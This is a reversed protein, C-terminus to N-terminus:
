PHNRGLFILTILNLGGNSMKVVLPCHKLVRERSWRLQPLLGRQAPFSPGERGMGPEWHNRLVIAM